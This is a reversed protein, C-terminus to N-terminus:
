DRLTLRQGRMDFGSLTSIFNMGLLSQDLRGPEAVLVPLNYRTIDGIRIENLTIRAANARGNATMIPTNFSLNNLEYGIKVADQASLVTSTAGTDIMVQIPIGNVQARVEFHGNAMKELVVSIRGDSDTISLPSGPILGATVRSAVDQLEYRYQYGAVLALIILLWVAMTRVVHGFRLGSGLVGAGVVAGFVGLYILRAFSDDEMGLVTGSDGSAFLAILGLALVGLVIWILRPM